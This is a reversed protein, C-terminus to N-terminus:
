GSAALRQAKALLEEVMAGAVDVGIIRQAQAFYCPFNAELLYLRGSPHELVDVGGFERRIAKVASVALAELGQPPAITYDEADRTAHSRFDDIDNHNRYSAVMRDGVVIARWHTADDVYSTLLPQSGQAVLYDVLSFLGALTDARMVGVGGAYGALKVVIPLGGLREVIERLRERDTTACPVTRPVPLGARQFSLLPNIGAFLIEDHGPYFTAVGPRYLHQEVRQAVLSVGPRYLLEGPEAHEEPAFTFSRADIEVYEVDRASCAASLLEVTESPVADNVCIFITM